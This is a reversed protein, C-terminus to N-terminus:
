KVQALEPRQDFAFDNGEQVVAIEIVNEGIGTEFAQRFPYPAPETGMEGGM